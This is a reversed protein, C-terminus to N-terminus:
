INKAEGVQVSVVVEIKKFSPLRGKEELDVLDKKLRIQMYLDLQIHM